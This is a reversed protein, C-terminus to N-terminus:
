SRHYEFYEAMQRSSTWHHLYDKGLLLPLGHSTRVVAHTMEGKRNYFKTELTVLSNHLLEMHGWPAQHKGVLTGDTYSELHRAFLVRRKDRDELVDCGHGVGCDEAREVSLGDKATNMTWCCSRQRMQDDVQGEEDEEDRDEEAECACANFFYTLLPDKVTASAAAV